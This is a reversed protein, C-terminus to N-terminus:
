QKVEPLYDFVQVRRNYTDAVWIRNHKDIFIGAPLWFEGPKHGEQGFDMLLLADASFMQVVEFNADVVYLHGDSDLAIGKPQSFYGPMDGKKGVTRLHAFDPGFVQVRFNLSDSVYIRGAEDALVNTPFNFEAPGSGRSGLRAQLEGDSNFIAIQHSGTDTVLLRQHTSDYFLGSPRKLEGAGIVGTPNGSNDFVTIEAAVSDAVFVRGGPDYAVGVPQSFNRNKAPKLQTYKRTKLNFVHVIQANSDAVFLRNANDTCLAYPSILEKPRQKGFIAQGLAAFGNVRAKLDASTKLEGVYRVRPPEPAAPWTPPNEIASFIEGPKSACGIMAMSALLLIIQAIRM